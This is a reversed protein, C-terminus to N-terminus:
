ITTTFFSTTSGKSPDAPRGRPTFRDAQGKPRRYAGPRLKGSRAKPATVM